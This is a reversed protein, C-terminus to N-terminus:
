QQNVEKKRQDFIEQIDQEFGNKKIPLGHLEAFIMLCLNNVAECTKSIYIYVYICIYIYKNEKSISVKWMQLRTPYNSDMKRKVCFGIEQESV